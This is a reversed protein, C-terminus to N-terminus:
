NGILDGIMESGLQTWVLYLRQKKEGELTYYHFARDKALGRGEYKPTLKYRGGNYYQIGEETLRKNLEKTTMGYAKAIDTVTLCGDAPANESEIQQRRIADSQQLIEGETVLLRPGYHGGEGNYNGEGKPSPNPTLRRKELEEWRLVLKARAVDNFKTAIYLSEIKSLVFVPRLRYGGNPLEERQQMFGFKAGHEQEWAPEMNRIDRLVHAHTKGTVQAIDLSTMRQEDNAMGSMANRKLEIEKVM